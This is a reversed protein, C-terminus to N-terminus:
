GNPLLQKISASDVKSVLIKKRLHRKVKAPKKRMGHRLFAQKRKVKGNGNIKFRKAGGRHTKMKTKAM